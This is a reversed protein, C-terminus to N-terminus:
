LEIFVIDSEGARPVGLKGAIEWDKPTPLCAEILIQIAGSEQATVMANCLEEKESDSIPLPNITPTGSRAQLLM